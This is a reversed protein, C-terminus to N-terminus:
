CFLVNVQAIFCAHTHHSAVCTLVDGSRVELKFDSSKYSCRRRKANRSHTTDASSSSTNGDARARKRSNRVGSPQQSSSSEPVEIDCEIPSLSKAEMSATPPSSKSSPSSKSTTDSESWLSANDEAWEQDGVAKFSEIESMQDASPPQVQCHKCQDSVRLRSQYHVLLAVEVVRRYHRQWLESNMCQYKVERSIAEEMKSLDLDLQEKKFYSIIRKRLFDCFRYCDDQFALVVEIRSSHEVKDLEKRQKRTLWLTEDSTPIDAVLFISSAYEEKESESMAGFICSLAKNLPILLEFDLTTPFRKHEFSETM